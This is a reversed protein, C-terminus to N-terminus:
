RPQPPNVVGRRVAREKPLYSSGRVNEARYLKFVIIRSWHAIVSEKFSPQKWAWRRTTNVKDCGKVVLSDNQSRLYRDPSKGERSQVKDGLTQIRCPKNVQFRFLIRLKTSSLLAKLWGISMWHEVGTKIMGSEVKISKVSFWSEGLKIPREGRVV